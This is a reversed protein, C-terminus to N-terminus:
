AASGAGSRTASAPSAARTAAAGWPRRGASSRGAVRTAAEPRGRGLDDAPLATCPQSGPSRATVRRSPWPLRLPRASSRTQRTAACGPSGRAQRLAVAAAGRTSGAAAFGARGRPLARRRCGPRPRGASRLAAGPDDLDEGLLEPHSDPELSRDGRILACAGVGTQDDFARYIQLAQDSLRRWGAGAAPGPRSTPSQSRPRTSGGCADCLGGASGRRRHGDGRGRLAGRERSAHRPRHHSPDSAPARATQRRHDLLAVDPLRPRRAAAIDPRAPDGPDPVAAIGSPFWSWELTDAVLRLVRDVAALDQAADGSPPPAADLLRVARKPEGAGLAAAAQLLTAEAAPLGVQEPHLFGPGGRWEERLLLRLIATAAQM